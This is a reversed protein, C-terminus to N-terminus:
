GVRILERRKINIWIFFQGLFHVKVQIFGKMRTMLYSNSTPIDPQRVGFVKIKHFGDYYIFKRKM